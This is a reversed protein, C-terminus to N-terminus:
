EVTESTMEGNESYERVTTTELQGGRYLEECYSKKTVGDSYYEEGGKSRLSDGNEDPYSNDWVTRTLVGGDFYMETYYVTGDGSTYSVIQEPDDLGIAVTYKTMDGDTFFVDKTGAAKTCEEDTCLLYMQEVVKDGEGLVEYALVSYYGDFSGYDINKSDAPVTCGCCLILLLMALTILIFKKM